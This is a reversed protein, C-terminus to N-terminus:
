EIQLLVKASQILVLSAHIFVVLGPDIAIKTEYLSQSGLDILLLVDVILPLSLITLQVRLEVSLSGENRLPVDIDLSGLM